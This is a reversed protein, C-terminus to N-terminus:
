GVVLEAQCASVLEADVLGSRDFPRMRALLYPRADSRWDWAFTVATKIAAVAANSDISGVVERGHVLRNRPSFLLTNLQDYTRNVEKVSLRSGEYNLAQLEHKRDAVRLVHDIYGDGVAARELRQSMLLDILSEVAFAAYMLALGWNRWMAQRVAEALLERWVPFPEESAAIGFVQFGFFFPLRSNTRKSAPEYSSVVRFGEVSLGDISVHVPYQGYGSDPVPPPFQYKSVHFVREFPTEFRVDITEGIKLAAVVNLQRTSSFAWCFEAFGFSVLSFVEIVADRLDFEYVGTNIRAGDALLETNFPVPLYHFTAHSGTKAREPILGEKIAADLRRRISPLMEASIPVVVGIEEKSAVSQRTFTKDPSVPM